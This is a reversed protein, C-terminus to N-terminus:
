RMGWCQVPSSAIIWIPTCRGLSSTTLETPLVNVKAAQPSVMFSGLRTVIHSTPVRSPNWISGSKMGVSCFISTTFRSEAVPMGRMSTVENTEGLATGWSLSASATIAPM